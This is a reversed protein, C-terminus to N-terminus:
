DFVYIQFDLVWLGIFYGNTFTQEFGEIVIMSIEDSM